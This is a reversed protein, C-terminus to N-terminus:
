VINKKHMIDWDKYFKDKDTEWKNVLYLDTTYRELVNLKVKDNENSVTGPGIYYFPINNGIM